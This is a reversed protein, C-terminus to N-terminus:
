LLLLGRAVTSRPWKARVVELLRMGTVAEDGRQPPYDCALFGLSIRCVMSSEESLDLWLRSARQSCLALEM